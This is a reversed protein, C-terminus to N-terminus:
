KKTTVQINVPEDKVDVSVAYEFARDTTAATYKKGDVRINRRKSTDHIILRINRSVTQDVSQVITFGANKGKANKSITLLSYRKEAISNKNIGDDYFLRYTGTGDAPYYHLDLSDATYDATSEVIRKHMMPIFSGAKAYVLMINLSVQKTVTGYSIELADTGSAESMLYWKGGPLYVKRGTANKQLVPAVLINEGWMYEDTANMALTDDPYYYYLPAALPKGYLAQEYALTYNYPLLKYRLGIANKALSRYPEQLLAAESPFSFAGKDIDGLATGHPRFVPTFAAFQLWRVYLEGDGEGGAYGGADAHVYPVGSMSMGLMVPLQARFGSWTRGVDGSWPFIGFRQTGAFGSRNLSFLRKAPYYRAYKQYLMKTWSHGYLNHVEDAAFLRQFGLDGLNHYLNSPHSEPEGLDGWWGEVGNDMQKKYFNWFWSQANNKFMDVLGGLGFYFNKLVYPRRVSDTALYPLSGTYNLSKQVIFPETILITQVHQAKFDGIMKAPDPWKTRNVWDLNGLTNKISDGFWFLDFIIADVPIQQAKMKGLIETAQQQSSYGFRSMLNGMAWRPPLPQTGTLMLYNHLLAQYDKGLILYFNLEGSAFDAEFITSDKKGINVYGKAPNDFFLAYGKSSTFFPVSYNLNNAGEGYGYWPGNYLNFDYGRRDLPLAREGGGFIKEGRSLSFKFGHMASDRTTALLRFSSNALSLMNEDTLIFQLGSIDVTAAGDIKLIHQPIIDQLPKAIVADSINEDTTYDEPKYTVKVTGPAYATFTFLGNKTAFKQSQAKISNGILLCCCLFYIASRM